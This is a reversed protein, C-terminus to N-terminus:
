LMALKEVANAPIIMQYHELYYALVLDKGQVKTGYEALVNCVKNFENLNDKEVDTKISIVLYYVLNKEDKFFTSVYNYFSVRKCAETAKDINEFEFIKVIEDAKENINKLDRSDVTNLMNRPRMVNSNTSLEEELKEFANELIQMLSISPEKAKTFNSFRFDLEDPEEINTVFLEISGGKKPVAEIALPKTPVFGLQEYALELMESFLKKIKISGYAMEELRIGRARLEQEEILCKIVNDNIREVKM